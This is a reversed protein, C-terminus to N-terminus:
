ELTWDIRPISLAALLSLSKTRIFRRVSQLRTAFNILTCLVYVQAAAFLTSVVQVIVAGRVATIPRHHVVRHPFSGTFRHNLLCLLTITVANTLVLLPIHLFKLFRSESEM